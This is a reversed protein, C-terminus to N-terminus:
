SNPSSVHASPPRKVHTAIGIKELTWIIYWTPDWEYWRHAAPAVDQHAHHNNHWGEGFTLFAVWWCNKSLDASEYRRSGWKHTASNVFWTFHYVLVLRVAIGWVLFPISGLAYLIGALIVQLAIQVSDKELFMLYPDQAIDRAFRRLRTENTFQPQKYLMWGLHSWWFGRRANHPDQDSDVGAHHMRHEAVWNLPGRQMALVGCTALLREFWKPTKFSRHTLLRHYGLTIGLCGTVIYLFFGVLIAPKTSYFFPLIFASLHLIIFWAIVVVEKQPPPSDKADQSSGRFNYKKDVKKSYSMDNRYGQNKKLPPVLTSVQSQM